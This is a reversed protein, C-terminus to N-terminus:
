HQIHLTTWFRSWEQKYMILKLLNRKRTWFRTSRLLIESTLLYIVFQGWKKVMRKVRLINRGRMDISHVM